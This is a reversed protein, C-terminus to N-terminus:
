RGDREARIAVESGARLRRMTRRFDAHSPMGAGEGVPLLRAIPKGHRTIVLEGEASLVKDLHSLVSRVNRISVKKM